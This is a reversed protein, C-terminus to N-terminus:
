LFASDPPLEQPTLDGSPRFLLPLPPFALPLIHRKKKKVIGPKSLNRLFHLQKLHYLLYNYSQLQLIIIIIHLVQWPLYFMSM